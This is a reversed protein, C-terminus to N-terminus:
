EYRLANVPHTDAAKAAPIFAGLVSFVVAGIMTTIATNVDIRNPIEAFYYVSPDWILTGKHLLLAVGIGAVVITCLAWLVVPLMRENLVQKLTILMAIIAFGFAVMWSWKPADQGIADHIANINRIVLWALGLGLISGIIGIIAGYRLFIMSIGLRSVGISRLIGIDRTKEHVIAWFIAFILAAAVIYIISFLIRMIEREKEVPGIFQAQQQEWTKISLSPSRPSPPLINVSEDELLSVYFREYAGAVVAQLADASVGDEGRVLVSTVRAPYTGLVTLPDDPDVLEAESLHLMDQAIDLPIMVRNRDIVFVGSVFENVIPLIRVEPELVGSRTDIPITTLTIERGPMWWYGDAMPHYSGDRQRENAQSVHMGLVIGPRGTASHRLTLGDKLITEDVVRRLDRPLASRQEDETLPRWWLADAYGTVQSFSGPEIGWVEVGASDKDPGEPYPMKLIALHSVVPTAAAVEETERLVELLREYHAIGQVPRSIIVDGMLTRGSSRVNDLFGTMVSVVIIVLAVCLAVAAVAILPIVRTTLYRNTLLAHYM